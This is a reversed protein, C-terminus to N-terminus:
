SVIREGGDCLFEDEVPAFHAGAPANVAGHCLHVGQQKKGRRGQGRFVNGLRKGDRAGIHAGAQALELAPAYDADHMDQSVAAVVELGDLVNPFDEPDNGFLSLAAFDIGRQAHEVFAHLLDFCIRLAVGVRALPDGVHQLEQGRHGAQKFFHHAHRCARQFTDDLQAALHNSQEAVILFLRGYSPEERDVKGRRRKRHETQQPKEAEKRPRSFPLGRSFFIIESTLSYVSPFPRCARPQSKQSASQLNQVRMARQSAGMMSRRPIANAGSCSGRTASSSPKDYSSKIFSICNSSLSPLRYPPASAATSNARSIQHPAGSTQTEFIGPIISTKRLPYKQTAAFRLHAAACHGASCLEFHAGHASSLTNLFAM